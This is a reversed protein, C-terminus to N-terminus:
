HICSILLLDLCKQSDRMMELQYFKIVGRFIGNARNFLEISTNQQPKNPQIKGIPPAAFIPETGHLPAPASMRSMTVAFKHNLLIRCVNLLNTISLGFTWNHNNGTLRLLWQAIEKNKISSQSKQRYCVQCTARIFMRYQGPPKQVPWAALASAEAPIKM